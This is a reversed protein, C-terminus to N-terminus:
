ETPSQFLRHLDPSYGQAAAWGAELMDLARKCHEITINGPPSVLLPVAAPSAKLAKRVKTKEQELLALYRVWPLIEPTDFYYTGYKDIKGPHKALYGGHGTHIGTITITKGMAAPDLVPISLKRKAEASGAAKLCDEAKKRATALETTCGSVEGVQWFFMGTVTNLVIGPEIDLNM